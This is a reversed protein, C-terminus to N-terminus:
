QTHEIRVAQGDRVRENGRTIVKDGAVLAGPLLLAAEDSMAAVEVPISQATGEVVRLVRTQGPDLLLADRPVSVGDGTWSVPLRLDVMQGAVLLANPDPTIRLLATRTTRDLAPVIAVVTGSDGGVSVRLGPRLQDALERPVSSRVEVDSNSVVGLVPEGVTVWDGRDVSRTTVVGDFPARVRHRALMARAEAATAQAAAFRAEQMRVASRADTIEQGALVGERVSDRRRMGERLRELEIAAEDAAAAAADRQARALATDIEMLVAGATVEDGERVAVNTVPGTAGAALEASELAHVEAVAAWEETLDGSGVDAVRVLAPPPGSPASQEEAAGCAVVFLLIWRLM